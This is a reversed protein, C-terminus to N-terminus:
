QRFLTVRKYFTRRSTVSACGNKREIIKIAVHKQTKCENDDAHMSLCAPENDDAHMSFCTPENDDAHMNFCTPVQIRMTSIAVFEGLNDHEHLHPILANREQSQDPWM